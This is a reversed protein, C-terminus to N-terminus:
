VFPVTIKTYYIRIINEAARFCIMAAPTPILQLICSVADKLDQKTFEDLHLLLCAPLLEGITEERIFVTKQKAYENTIAIMWENAKKSLKKADELDVNISQRLFEQREPYKKGLYIAWENASTYIGELSTYTKSLMDLLPLQRELAELLRNEGKVQCYQTPQITSASRCREYLYSLDQILNMLNYVARHTVM